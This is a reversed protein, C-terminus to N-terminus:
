GSVVIGKVDAMYRNATTTAEESSSGRERADLYAAYWDWWNHPPAVAEFLGHHESTEHLLDALTAVDDETAWERGPIRTTIEQLFWTNADPDKFSAYTFYSRSKNPDPGAVRSELEGAHGPQREYHYVDSVEAGGSILDARAADIDNVVLFMRDASGPQAKTVGKGFQISCGSYPPTLQVARFDDGVMTDNDLRWGLGVYFSKARDVDSVPLTVVELDFDVTDVDPPTTAADSTTETSAM